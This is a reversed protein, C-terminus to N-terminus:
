DCRRYTHRREAVRSAVVSRLATSDMHSGSELLPASGACLQDRPVGIIDLSTTNALHTMYRDLASEGSREGTRKFRDMLAQQYSSIALRNRQLFAGYSSAARCTDSLVMLETQFKVAQDAEIEDARYCSVPAATAAGTISVLVLAALARRLM